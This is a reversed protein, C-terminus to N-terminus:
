EYKITEAPNSLAARTSLVLVTSSAIITILTLTFAVHFVGISIHYAFNSLWNNMIVFAVPLAVLAALLIWRLFSTLLMINITMMSGGLVKRIGIEKRRQNVMFSTLGFLGLCSILICLIAFWLFIQMSNQESRYQRALINSVYDAQFYHGPFFSAFEQEIKKMLAPENASKYRINLVQMNGPQWIYVAPEIPNHLSFYHYDEIVGIVTYYDIDEDEHNIFRRGVPNQWGLSNQAARNIIITRQPDTAYEESFNRGEIVDIQMAPFFDPDVYGYRVMLDVPVSDATSIMSQRGAVGNYGSSIGASVIEPVTKLRNKFAKLKDYDASQRSNISILNNYDFGLDKSELHKVQQMVVVTALIMATSIAFQLVVLIKRLGSTVPKGSKGGARLVTAAEFRSLYLAPYFGSIMGITVLIVILGINFIYNGLFDIRLNSQLLANYRPLIIEVVGLAAIIALLTIIMSEGIFQIALKQRGAGMLKRLGVEKARRASNATALNIYNICAIVLVLLGIVSFIYVNRINGTHTVMQFKIHESHLYIDSYKQLYFTNKMMHPDQERMSRYKENIMDEVVAPEVGQRLVIYTALSNNGPINLWPFEDEATVFSLLIDAKLHTKINENEFVGTVTYSKDGMRFIEGVADAKNYFREAVTRSLVAQHPASLMSSADQGYLIPYGVQELINRESFFIYTEKFVKDGIEVVDLMSYMLRFADEVQPYNELLDPAVVASTIAVHQNDLGAPEQLGVLRYIRDSVPSKDYGLQDQIYMSILLFAAIGATLGLLNIVAFAANRIIFRISIKIFNLLM